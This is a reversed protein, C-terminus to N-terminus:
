TQTFESIKRAKEQGRTRWGTWAIIKRNEEIWLNGMLKQLFRHLIWVYKTRKRSVQQSKVNSIRVNCCIPQKIIFYFHFLYGSLILPNFAFNLFILPFATICLSHLPITTTSRYWHSIDFWTSIPYSSYATSSVKWSPQRATSAATPHLTTQGM